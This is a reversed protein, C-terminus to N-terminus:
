TSTSDLGNNLAWSWLLWVIALGCFAFSIYLCPQMFHHRFYEILIWAMDFNYNQVVIYFQDMTLSSILNHIHFYISWEIGNGIVLTPLIWLFLIDIDRRSIM